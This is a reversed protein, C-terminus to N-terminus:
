RVPFNEDFVVDYTSIINRTSPVYVLCGKQHQTNGVFISRFGKQEQYRMHLAKKEVHATSKRVVCTCFLMRLHSVSHKTGKALKFSRTPESDKNILDKIPLVM